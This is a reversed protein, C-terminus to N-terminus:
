APQKSDLKFLEFWCDLELRSYRVTRYGLKHAKPFGPWGPINRRVERVSIGLKAAIYDISVLRDDPATIPNGNM